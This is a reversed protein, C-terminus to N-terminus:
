YGLTVDSRCTERRVRPELLRLMWNCISGSEQAPPHSRQRKREGEQGLLIKQALGVGPTVGGVEISNLWPCIQSWPSIAFSVHQHCHYLTLSILLIGEPVTGRGYGPGLGLGHVM